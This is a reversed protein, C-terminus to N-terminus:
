GSSRWAKEGESQEWESVDARNFISALCVCFLDGVEGYSTLAGSGACFASLNTLGCFGRPLESHLFTPPIHSTPLAHELIRFAAQQGIPVNRGGADKLLTPWPPLAQFTELSSTVAISWFGAWSIRSPLLPPSFFLFDDRERIPEFGAATSQTNLLPSPLTVM